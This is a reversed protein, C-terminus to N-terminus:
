LLQPTPPAPLPTQPPIQLSSPLSLAHPPKAHPNAPPNVRPDTPPNPPTIPTHSLTKLPSAHPLSAPSSAPPPKAHPNAHLPRARATVRANGPPKRASGGREARCNRALPSKGQSLLFPNRTSSVQRAMVAAARCTLGPRSCPPKCCSLRAPAGGPPWPLGGPGEEALEPSPAQEQCSWPAEPLPWLGVAQVRGPPAASRTHCRKELAAEDATLHAGGDGALLLSAVAAEMEGAGGLPFADGLEEPQVPLPQRLRGMKWGRERGARPGPSAPPGM